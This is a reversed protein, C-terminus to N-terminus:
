RSPNSSTDSSTDLAIPPPKRKKPIAGLSRQHASNPSDNSANSMSSSSSGDEILPNSGSSTSSSSRDSHKRELKKLGNPTSIYVSLEETTGQTEPRPVVYHVNMEENNSIHSSSRRTTSSTPATSNHPIEMNHVLNVEDEDKRQPRFYWLGLLGIVCLVIVTIICGLAIKGINNEERVYECDEFHPIRVNDDVFTLSDDTQGNISFQAKIQLRKGIGGIFL